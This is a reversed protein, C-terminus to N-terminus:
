QILIKALVPQASTWAKCMRLYTDVVVDTPLGTKLINLEWRMSVEDDNDIYLRCFDSTNNLKNMAELVQPRRDAPVKMQSLVALVVARETIKGDKDTASAASKLMMLYEPVNEAKERALLTLDKDDGEVVTLSVEYAAKFYRALTEETTRNDQAVTLMDDAAQAGFQPLALALAFLTAALVTRLQM